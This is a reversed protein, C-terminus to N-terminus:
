NTQAWTTGTWVFFKGTDTALYCASAGACVAPTGPRAAATGAGLYVPCLEADVHLTYPVGITQRNGAMIGPGPTDGNVLPVFSAGGGGTGNAAATIRGQADVTINANTYAGPTVATNALNLTGTQTISGGGSVNLGIGPTVQTVATHFILATAGPNVQVFLGAQAAYTSPVDTLGIFTYPTPIPINTGAVLNGLFMGTAIPTLSFSPAVLSGNSTIGGNSGAAVAAAPVYGLDQRMRYPTPRTNQVPKGYGHPM